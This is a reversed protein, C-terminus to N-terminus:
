WLRYYLTRLLLDRKDTKSYSSYYTNFVSIAEAGKCKRICENIQTDYSQLDLFYVKNSSAILIENVSNSLQLQNKDDPITLKQMLMMDHKHFIYVDTSNAIMVLHRITALARKVDKVGTLSPSSRNAISGTSDYMLGVFVSKDLRTLFLIEDEAIVEIIPEDIIKVEKKISEIAKGTDLNNM